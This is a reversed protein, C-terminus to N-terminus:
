RSDKAVRHLSLNGLIIFMLSFCVLILWDFSLHRVTHLFMEEAEHPVSPITLQIALPMENLNSTSGLSEMGWRSLMTYSVLEFIDDLEFLAGSFILQAILIYPSLVNATEVKRVLCSVFLGLTDASYMLLVISIYYELLSSHFIIGTEPATNGFRIQVGWFCLSLFASQLLCLLLQTSARSATYNRLRMGSFYDRKINEREKVVVQISNFLGGWIAASVIVFCASKTGNYHVFMDKGAVFITILMAVIPFIMSIILNRRDYWMLSLSQRTLLNLEKLASIRKNEM